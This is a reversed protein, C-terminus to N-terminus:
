NWSKPQQPLWDLPAPLRRLIFHGTLWRESAKAVRLIADYGVIVALLFDKGTIGKAEGTALTSPIVVVGPHSTTHSEDDDMEFGHGFTANAFAAEETTTKLGYYTVTSAEKGGHKNEVYKYILQSWPLATFALQCGM